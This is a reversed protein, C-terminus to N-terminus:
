FKLFSKMVDPGSYVIARSKYKKFKSVRYICFGSPEHIVEEEGEKVPPLICEFDAYIVFPLQFMKEYNRFGLINEPRDLFEDDEEVVGAPEDCSEDDGESEAFFDEDQVDREDYGRNNKLNKNRAEEEERKKKWERKQRPTFTSPFSLRCAEKKGCEVEHNKLSNESWCRHLCYVCPHIKHRDKSLHNLM